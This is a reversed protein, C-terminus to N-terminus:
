NVSQMSNDHLQLCCQLFLNLGIFRQLLHEVVKTLVATPNEDIYNLLFSKLEEGLIRPQETKKM